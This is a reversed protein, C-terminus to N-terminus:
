KRLLRAAVWGSSGDGQLSIRVWGPASTDDVALVEDGSVLASVIPFNTGPGTRVNAGGPAHMLKGGPIADAAPTAGDAATAVADAPAVADAVGMAVDPQADAQVATQVVSQAATQAVPRVVPRVVPQAVPQVVPRVVPQAPIFVQRKPAASVAPMLTPAVAPHVVAVPGQPAPTQGGGLLTMAMFLFVGLGALWRIM